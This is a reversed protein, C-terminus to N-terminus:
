VLDIKGSRNDGFLTLNSRVFNEVTFIKVTPLLDKTVLKWNAPIGPFIESFGCCANSSIL